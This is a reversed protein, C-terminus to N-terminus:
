RLEIGRMIEAIQEFLGEHPDNARYLLRFWDHEMHGGPERVILRGAEIDHRVFYLPLVAVGEGALVLERIAAITGARLMQGFRMLKPPDGEPQWYSFLPLDEHADILTHATADGPADLPVDELLDPAGVLVYDERHLPLTAVRRTSPARSSIAVDVEMTLLREELEPASGFYLHFTVHPLERQIAERCPLVWSMGLEYRTGLVLELVPRQSEGQAALACEEADALLRQARPLMARGAETLEVRRTTRHFLRVGLQEELSKIRKGLAAPTLAQAKAAARFNLTHAAAVFCAVSDLDLLM